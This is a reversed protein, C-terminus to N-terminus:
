NDSSSEKEKNAKCVKVILSGDKMLSVEATAADALRM